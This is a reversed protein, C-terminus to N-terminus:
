SDENMEDEPLQTYYYDSVVYRDNYYGKTWFAGAVLVVVLPLIWISKKKM